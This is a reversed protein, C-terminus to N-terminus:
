FSLLHSLVTLLSSLVVHSCGEMLCAIFGSEGCPWAPRPSRYSWHSWSCGSVRFVCDTYLFVRFCVACLFVRFCVTLTCFCGSVCLVCFCGLVCCVSIGQFVYCVSVDQFVCGTYLFVRFCVACLVGQFVCNAYLFVRLCVTYLFM